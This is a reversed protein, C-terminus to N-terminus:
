EDVDQTGAVHDNTAAREQEAGRVVAIGAVDATSLQHALDQVAAVVAIAM